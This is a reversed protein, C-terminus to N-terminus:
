FDDFYREFLLLLSFVTSTYTHQIQCCLVFRNLRKNIRTSMCACICPFSNKAYIYDHFDHTNIHISVICHFHTLNTLTIFFIYNEYFIFVYYIFWLVYICFFSHLQMIFLLVYILVIATIKKSDRKLSMACM